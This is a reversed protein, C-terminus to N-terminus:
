LDKKRFKGVSVIFMKGGEILKSPLVETFWKNMQSKREETMPEDGVLPDDMIITDRSITVQISDLTKFPTFFFENNGKFMCTGVTVGEQTVMGHEDVEVSSLKEADVWYVYELAAKASQRQEPSM